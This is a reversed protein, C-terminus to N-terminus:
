FLGFDLLGFLLEDYTLHQRLAPVVDDVDIVFCGGRNKKTKKASDMQKEVPPFVFVRQTSIGFGQSTHLALALLHFM